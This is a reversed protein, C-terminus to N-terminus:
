RGLGLLEESSYDRGIEAAIEKARNWFLHFEQCSDRLQQDSFNCDVANLELWIASGLVPLAALYIDVSPLAAIEAAEVIKAAAGVGAIVVGWQRAADFGLQPLRLLFAKGSSEFGSMASWHQDLLTALRRQREYANRAREYDNWQVTLTHNARFCQERSAADSVTVSGCQAKNAMIAAEVGAAQAVLGDHKQQLWAILPRDHTAVVPKPRALLDAWAVAGSSVWVLLWVVALRLSPKMRRVATGRQTVQEAM